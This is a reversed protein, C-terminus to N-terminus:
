AVLWTLYHFPSVMSQSDQGVEEYQMAGLQEVVQVLWEYLRVRMGGELRLTPCACFLSFSIPSNLGGLPSWAPLIFAGLTVVIKRGNSRPSIPTTLQFQSRNPLSLKDQSKWHTPKPTLQTPATYLYHASSLLLSSYTFKLLPGYGPSKSLDPQIICIPSPSSRIEPRRFYNRICRLAFFPYAWWM